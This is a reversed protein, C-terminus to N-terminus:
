TALWAALAEALERASGFRERPDKKLCSAVIVCLGADLDPRIERPDRPPETAIATFLERVTEASFPPRGTLMEYLLAGLSYIDCSPGVQDKLGLVQEPAMYAPTGAAETSSADASRRLDYALGFDTIVPQGHEDLLINGPKLDRHVIDKSHAHWLARAVKLALIAARRQDMGKEGILEEINPGAIYDMTYYYTGEHVDLEYITVINPHRLRAVAAAERLFRQIEDLSAAEGARIVKLAVTRHLTEQEAKYVVGMGGRGLEELIRYEHFQQGVASGVPSSPGLAVTSDDGDVKEFSVTEGAAFADFPKGCRPCVARRVSHTSAAEFGFSCRPCKVLM